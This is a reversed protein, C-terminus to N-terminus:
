GAPGKRCLSRNMVALRRALALNDTSDRGSQIARRCEQLVDADAPNAGARTLLQRVFSVEIRHSPVGSKRAIAALTRAFLAELAVSSAKSNEFVNAMSDIYELTSRGEERSLSKFRGAYLARRSYFFLLAGFIIQIFIWAFISSGVYSWFSEALPYGHHYEDFLVTAPRGKGLLIAPLLRANQDLALFRNSVMTSDSVAWIRGKGMSKTIIAAGLGDSATVTWERAPKNWRTANSLSLRKVGYLQDSNIELTSRSSDPSRKLRLGLRRAVTNGHKSRAAPSSGESSFDLWAKERFMFGGQLVVLCNGNEVWELLKSLERKDFRERTPEVVVLARKRPQLLSFPKRFREVPIQLEELLLYLAKCGGPGVSYTSPVFQGAKKDDQGSIVAAVVGGIILSAVVLIKQRFSM